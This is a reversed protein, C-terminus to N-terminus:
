QYLAECLDEDSLDKHKKIFVVKTVRLHQTYQEAYHGMNVDFKFIQNNLTFTSCINFYNVFHIVYIQKFVYRAFTITKRRYVFIM